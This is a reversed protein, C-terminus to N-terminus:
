QQQHDLYHVDYSAVGLQSKDSVRKNGMHNNDGVDQRKAQDM